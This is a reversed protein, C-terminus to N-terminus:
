PKEIITRTLIVIRTVKAEEVNVWVFARGTSTTNQNTTSQTLTVIASTAKLTVTGDAEVMANIIPKVATVNYGESLLTQVDTDNKAINIVNEKFAESVTISIGWPGMGNVQGGHGHRCTFNGFDNYTVTTGTSADDARGNAYALAAIGSLVTVVLLASIMLIKTKRELTL